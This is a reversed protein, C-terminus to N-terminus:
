FYGSQHVHERVGEMWAEHAKESDGDADELLELWEEETAESVLLCCPTQDADYFGRTILKDTKVSRVHFYSVPESGEADGKRLLGEVEERDREWQAVALEEMEESLSPGAPCERHRYPISQLFEMEYSPTIECCHVHRREDFLYVGIIKGGCREILEADLWNATEDRFYLLARPLVLEETATM